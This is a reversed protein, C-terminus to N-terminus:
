QLVTMKKSHSFEPTTLTYVYVGSPLGDSHFPITYEGAEMLENLLVKVLRGNVDYVNLNVQVPNPIEFVIQTQPNFPNPFNQQLSYGKPLPTRQHNVQTDQDKYLVWNITTEWLTWGAESFFAAGMDNWGAFLRREVAETTDAMLAGKEYAYLAGHCIFEGEDWPVYEAIVIGNENPLGQGSQIEYDDFIAVEGKLGAALYHEENVILIDRQFAQYYRLSDVDYTMGMDDQAYPEIMIVPVEVNKFQDAITTSSVTSSVYIFDMGDAWTSDVDNQDALEVIIGLNTELRDLMVEDGENLVGDGGVIFLGNVEQANLLCTISFVFIGCLILRSKM